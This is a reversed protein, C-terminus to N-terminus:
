VPTETRTVTVEAESVSCFLRKFHIITTVFMMAAPLVIFAIGVSKSIAEMRFSLDYVELLVATNAFYLMANAVPEAYGAWDVAVGYFNHDFLIDITLVFTVFPYQSSHGILYFALICSIVGPKFVNLGHQIFLANLGRPAAELPKFAEEIEELKPHGGVVGKFVAFLQNGTAPLVTFIGFAVHALGWIAFLVSATWQLENM